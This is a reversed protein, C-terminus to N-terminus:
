LSPASCSCFTWKGITWYWCFYLFHPSVRALKKRSAFQLFNALQYFCLINTSSYLPAVLCWYCHLESSCLLLSSPAKNRLKASPMDSPVFHTIVYGCSCHWFLLFVWRRRSGHVDNVLPCLQQGYFKFTQAWMKLLEPRPCMTHAWGSLTYALPACLLLTLKPHMAFYFPFSKKDTVFLVSM